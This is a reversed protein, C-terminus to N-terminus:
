VSRDPSADPVVEIDVAKQKIKNLYGLERKANDLWQNPDKMISPAEIVYKTVTKQKIEVSELRPAEYPALKAACDVAMKKSEMKYKVMQAILDHRVPEKKLEAIITDLLVAAQDRFYIMEQRLTQVASDPHDQAKTDAEPAQQEVQQM